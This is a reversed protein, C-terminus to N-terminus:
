LIFQINAAIALNETFNRQGIIIKHIAATGSTVALKGLMLSTVFFSVDSKKGLFLGV